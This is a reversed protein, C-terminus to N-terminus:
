NTIKRVLELQEPTNIGLAERPDIDMTVVQDGQTIAIRVLDTLYYEGQVNEKSIKKLNEWLWEANFCYYGPNIESIKLEDPTADKKEVIAM